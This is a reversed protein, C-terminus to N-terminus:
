IYCAKDGIKYLDKQSILHYGCPSDDDYKFHVVEIANAPEGNKYIVIKETIEVIEVSKIEKM